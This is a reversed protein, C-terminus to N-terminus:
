LETGARDARLENQRERRTVSFNDIGFPAFGIAGAGIALFLNRANGQSGPFRGFGHTEPIFLPNDPRKFQEMVDRYRATNPACLYRARSYRDGTSCDEVALMNSTPGGSPYDDGPVTLVPYGRPSKLWNNVYMPLAMEQKGAAAIQNIYTAVSWAQFTEDADDGFVQKWTGPKKDLAHVLERPVAGDFQKQAMPSFIACAAWRARSM